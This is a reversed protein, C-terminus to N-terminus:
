YTTQNSEYVTREWYTIGACPTGCVLAEFAAPAAFLPNVKSFRLTAPQANL